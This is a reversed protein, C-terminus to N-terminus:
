LFISIISGIWNKSDTQATDYAHRQKWLEYEPNTKVVRVVNTYHYRIDQAERQLRGLNVKLNNQMLNINIQLRRHELQNLRTAQIHCTSLVAERKM